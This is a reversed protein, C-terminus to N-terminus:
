AWCCWQGPWRNRSTRGRREEVLLRTFLDGLLDAAAEIDRVSRVLFGFLEPSLREYADETRTGVEPGLVAVVTTPVALEPELGPEM